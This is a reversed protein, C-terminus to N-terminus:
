GVPPITRYWYGFQRPNGSSKQAPKFNPFGFMSAMTQENESYTGPVALVYEAPEDFGLRGLLLHSYCRCGHIMFPNNEIHFSHQGLTPLAKISIQVCQHIDDDFFPQIHPYLAQIKEWDSAPPPSSPSDQSTDNAPAVSKPEDSRPEDNRPEDSRPEDSEPGDLPLEDPRLERLSAATLEPVSKKLYFQDPIIQEDRWSTAFIQGSDTQILLGGLDSFSFSSNLVDSESVIYNGYVTGHRYGAKGLFIGQLGENSPVFAYVSFVPIFPYAPLKMHIEIKCQHNRVEVRSFGHNKMKENNNYEYLYSIFRQYESM